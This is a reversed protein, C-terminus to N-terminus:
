YITDLMAEYLIRYSYLSIGRLNDEGIEAVVKGLQPFDPLVKTKDRIDQM